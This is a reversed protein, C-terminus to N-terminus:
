HPRNGTLFDELTEDWSRMQNISLRKLNANELVSYMPRNVKVPFEGPEARRLRVTSGSIDFIKRAFDFWSCQGEATVHYIGNDADSSILVGIQRAIEMTWTPTLVEDDVVAVEDREEALRLMLSVFSQGKARCVNDGYLGSVRVVFFDRATSQVFHEGALKSNGYVNLPVPRDEEVYPSGKEGDFIYDTSIQVLSAGLDNCVMSLNRPGAANVAFSLAPDAECKEVHHMAATNIVVNPRAASLTSAVSDIAAVDIEAHTLPVVEHDDSQSFFPVLDAGLQGNAGVVAIKM